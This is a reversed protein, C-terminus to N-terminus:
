NCFTQSSPKHLNDFLIYTYLIKFFTLFFIHILSLLIKLLKGFFTTINGISFILDCFNKLFFRFFKFPIPFIQRWGLALGENLLNQAIIYAFNKRFVSLYYFNGILTEWIYFIGMGVMYLM